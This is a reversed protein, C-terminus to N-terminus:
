LKIDMISPLGLEERTLVITGKRKYSGRICRTLIRRITDERYYLNIKPIVKDVQDIEGDPDFGNQIAYIMIEDVGIYNVGLQDEDGGAIGLGDDPMADITEQPVGIYRAIDYLELGKLMQQIIGFDGVDGGITWFAMWFESLNDTSLVIGETMGAVLYTGFTMRLRAKINGQSIKKAWEWNKLAHQNNTKRLIDKVQMNVSAVTNQYAIEFLYTLDLYVEEAGFKKIVKSGLVESEPKSQCPMILGVSTLDFNEKAALIVAREAFGLKLASDLGGSVGTVVTHKNDKICYDCLLKAGANVTNEIQKETLKYMTGEKILNDASSQMM